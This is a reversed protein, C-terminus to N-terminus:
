QETARMAAASLQAATQAISRLSDNLLATAKQLEEINDQADKLRLEAELECLRRIAHLQKVRKKM